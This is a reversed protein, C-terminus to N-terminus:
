AAVEQPKGALWMQERWWAENGGLEEILAAIMEPSPTRGAYISNTLNNRNLNHRAAFDSIAGRSHRDSHLRLEAARRWLAIRAADAFPVGVNILRELYPSPVKNVDWNKDRM